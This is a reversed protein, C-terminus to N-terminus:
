SKLLTGQRSCHTLRETIRIFRLFLSRVEANGEVLGIDYLERMRDLQKKKELGKLKTCFISIEILLEVVLTAKLPHETGGRGSVRDFSTILEIAERRWTEVLIKAATENDDGSKAFISKQLKMIGKKVVNQEEKYIGTFLLAVLVKYEWTMISSSKKMKAKIFQVLADVDKFSYGARQVEALTSVTTPDKNLFSQM